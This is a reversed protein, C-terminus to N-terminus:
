SKQEICDSDYEKCLKSWLDICIDRYKSTEEWTLKGVLYNELADLEENTIEITIRKKNM